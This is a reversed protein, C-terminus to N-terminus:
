KPWAGIVQGFADAWDRAIWRQASDLPLRGACALAHLRNELADKEHFGPTPAAPQPWLNTITDAGGLELPILHDVEFQGPRHTRIGYAAYVQAKTRATTHRVAQTTRHCIVHTDATAVAGPTVASDPLLVPLAVARRTERYHAAQAAAPALPLVLVALLVLGTVLRLLGAALGLALAGGVDTVVDRWSFGYGATGLKNAGYAGHGADWTELVEYAAGILAVVVFVNLWDHNCGPYLRVGLAVLAGCLLHARKFRPNPDLAFWGFWRARFSGGLM